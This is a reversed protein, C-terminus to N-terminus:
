APRFSVDRENATSLTNPTGEFVKSLEFQRVVAVGSAAFQSYIAEYEGPYMHKATNERHSLSEDDTAFVKLAVVEAVPVGLTEAAAAFHREIREVWV